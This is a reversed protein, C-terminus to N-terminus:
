GSVAVGGGLADQFDFGKMRIEPSIVHHRQNGRYNGRGLRRRRSVGVRMTRAHGGLLVRGHLGIARAARVLSHVVMFAVAGLM